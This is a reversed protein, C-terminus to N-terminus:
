NQWIKSWITVPFGFRVLNIGTKGRGYRTGSLDFIYWIQYSQVMAAVSYLVDDVEGAIKGISSPCVAISLEEFIIVNFLYTHLKKFFFVIWETLDGAFVCTRLLM